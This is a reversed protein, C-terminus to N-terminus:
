EKSSLSATAVKLAEEFTMRGKPPTISTTVVPEETVRLEGDVRSVVINRLWRDNDTHTSDLRYHAGRSEERRLASLATLRLVQVLDYVELAQMWEANALPSRTGSVAVQPLVNEEIDALEEAARQLEGADKVVGLYRGGLDQVRHKLEFPAVGGQRQLPAYVRAAAAEVQAEDVPLLAAGAAFRAASRGAIRGQIVAESIASSVRSAGWLGSSCEGAAFLGPLSGACDENIRIGGMMYHTLNGVEYVRGAFAERAFKPFGERLQLSGPAYIAIAELGAEFDEKSTGELTYFVGGHPSGRGARIELETGVSVIEKTSNEAMRPDYRMMFREGRSNLLKGLGCSVLIYSLYSNRLSPPWILCTPMAQIMEMDTLEGGARFVAAQGDGTLDTSASNLLWGGQWGGTAIVAAKCRIITLGGYRQDLAVAGCVQGDRTLLDVVMHDELWQPPDKALGRGLAKLVEKGSTNVGRVFAQSHAEDYSYVAMGWDILERTAVPNERVYAEVVKQNSLFLGDNVIDRFFTDPSDRLDGPLGIEAASRGDITLDAANATPTAGGRAFKSKTVAVTRAGGARAAIAARAGAAGGGVILVDTELVRYNGSRDSM